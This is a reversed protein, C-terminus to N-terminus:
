GKVADACGCLKSGCGSSQGKGPVEGRRIANLIRVVADERHALCGVEDALMGFPPDSPDDIEVAKPLKLDVGLFAAARNFERENHKDDVLRTPHNYVHLTALQLKVQAPHTPDPVQALPPCMWLQTGGALAVNDPGQINYQLIKTGALFEPTGTVSTLDGALSHKDIPARTLYVINDPRPFEIVSQVLFSRMVSVLFNPKVVLNQKPDLKSKGNTGPITLNLHSGSEIAQENLWTGALYRHDSGMDILYGALGDGHDVLSILGHLVVYLQMPAPQTPNTTPPM